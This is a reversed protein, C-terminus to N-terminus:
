FGGAGGLPVDVPFGRGVFSYHLGRPCFVSVLYAGDM